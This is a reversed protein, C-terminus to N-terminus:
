DARTYKAVTTTGTIITSTFCYRYIRPPQISTTPTESPLSILLTPLHLKATAHTAKHPRTNLRDQTHQAPPVEPPAGRGAGGGAGCRRRGSTPTAQSQHRLWANRHSRESECVEVVIESDKDCTIDRSM